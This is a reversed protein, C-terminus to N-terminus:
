YIFTPQGFNLNAWKISESVVYTSLIFDASLEKYVRRSNKYDNITNVTINFFVHLEYYLDIIM